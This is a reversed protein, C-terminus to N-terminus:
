CQELVSCYCYTISNEPNAIAAQFNRALTPDTTAVLDVKEDPSLVRDSVFSRGVRDDFTGGLHTVAHAWDRMPEGDIILRLSRVRAPGVGAYTFSMTFGATEGAMDAQSVLRTEDDMSSM